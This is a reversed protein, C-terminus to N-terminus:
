YSYDSGASGSNDGSSKDGSDDAPPAVPKSIAPLCTLNKTGDPKIVFWTGGVNQGKWTGPKKDGIYTYIPWGNVTLQKTGDDRTTSGLQASVGPATSPVPSPAPVPPWNAACAGTCTSTTGTDNAFVYITRGADNVLITGITSSQSSVVGAAASSSPASSAAPPTTETSSGCAAALSATAVALPVAVWRGRRGPTSPRFPLDTHM